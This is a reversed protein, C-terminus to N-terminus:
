LQLSLQTSPSLPIPFIQCDILSTRIKDGAEGDIFKEEDRELNSKGNEDDDDDSVKSCARKKENMEDGGGREREWKGNMTTTITERDGCEERIPCSSSLPLRIIGLSLVIV